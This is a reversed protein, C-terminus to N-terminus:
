QNAIKDKLARLNVVWIDKGDFHALMKEELGVLLEDREGIDGRAHLLKVIWYITILHDPRMEGLLELKKEIAWISRFEVEAEANRCQNVLALAINKRTHLTQCHEEGLVSTQREIALIARLEKEAEKYRGQSAIKEALTGRTNLTLLHEEGLVDPQRQIDLVACLETEAQAYRGQNGIELALHHRTTLTSPHKEDLHEPLRKIALIASFEAEAEEHRNQSGIQQALNHRTTLTIPHTEGLHEPLRQISLIARFEIEAEQYRNQAGIQQALNARSILTDPHEEGLVEPQREIEWIERYINEAEKYRSQKCIQHAQNALTTLTDRHEEGLVEPQRQIEWIARLEAEAEKHLSQDGILLAIRHRAELTSPHNEGLAGPQRIMELVARLETEAEAYRGQNGIQVALNSKMTVISSEHGFQTNNSQYDLIALYLAEIGSARLGKEFLKIRKNWWTIFTDNDFRMRHHLADFMMTDHEKTLESVLPEGLADDYHNFLSQHIAKFVKDREKSELAQLNDRMLAHMTYVGSEDKSIFSQRTFWDWNLNNIGGGHEQFLLMLTDESLVNPYSALRVMTHENTPLHDLFRQLIETHTGAFLAIDVEDSDMLREYQQAQLDLYFPLGEASAVIRNRLKIDDIPVKSLFLHSDEDSLAGLRHCDISSSWDADISKWQLMDRGFIAYLVGPSYEVLTRVWSDHRAGMLPDTTNTDRWLAEYTDLGIFIRKNPQTEVIDFLDAGLYEPLKALLKDADLTDIGKLVKSGRRQYWEKLQISLRSGYKYLFGIGPTDEVIDKVLEITDNLLTNEGKFLEPFKARVDVYPNTKVHYRAFATDFCPFAAGFSLGLQLRISLLAQEISRFEPIDLNVRATVIDYDAHIDSNMEDITSGIKGLLASKGEGGVGYWNLVECQELSAKQKIASTFLEVAGVRDTFERLAVFKKNHHKPKM